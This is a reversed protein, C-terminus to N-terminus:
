RSIFLSRNNALFYRKKPMACIFKHLYRFSNKLLMTELTDANEVGMKLKQLRPLDFVNEGATESNNNYKIELMFNDYNANIYKLRSVQEQLNMYPFVGMAVITNLEKNKVLKKSEEWTIGKPSKGFVLDSVKTYLDMIEPIDICYSGSLNYENQIVATMPSFGCGLDVFKIEKKSANTKSQIFNISESFRIAYHLSQLPVDKAREVCSAPFRDDKITGNLVKNGMVGLFRRNEPQKMVEILALNWEHIFKKTYGSLPAIYKSYRKIAPELFISCSLPIDMLGFTDKNTKKTM